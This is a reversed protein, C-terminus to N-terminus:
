SINPDFHDLLERHIFRFSGGVQQTLRRETTYKLFRVYDYPIHGGRCLFLRLLYHQVVATLSNLSFLLAWGVASVAVSILSASGSAAAQQLFYAIALGSPYTAVAIIPVNKISDVIGQNPQNRTKFDEKFAEILGGILGLILGLILRYQWKGATTDLWKPQMREILFVNPISNENLKRALWSLYRTTTEVDPEKATKGYAWKIEVPKKKALQRDKSRQAESLRRVIYADLLEAKTTIQKGPEYAIALIQLFLPISLLAGEEDERPQLLAGLGAEDQLDQLVDARGMKEFYERVQAKELPQLRLAGNLANLRVGDSEAIQDYEKARCCVVVKQGLQGTVFANIKEVCEAQRAADVEDLGDLLPLLHGDVIWRRSVAEDINHEFKLQAMLWNAIDQWTSLEFIYPIM